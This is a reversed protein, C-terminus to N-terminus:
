FGSSLVDGANRSGLVEWAKGDISEAVFRVAGDALLLHVGRGHGSVAPLVGAIEALTSGGQAGNYCRKKQPTAAHDYFQAAFWNSGRPEWSLQAPTEPLQECAQLFAPWQSPLLLGPFIFWTARLRELNAGGTYLMESMAATQSIGDTLDNLRVPDCGNYFGNFNYFCDSPKYQPWGTGWNTAYSLSSNAVSLGYGDSPCRYVPIKTFQAWLNSTPYEAEFQLYVDRQDLFPLLLGTNSYQGIPFCGHNEHYNHLALGIQHLNNKCQARRASERVSQVAPLLMALLLGVIAISVLLEIVTFGRRTM